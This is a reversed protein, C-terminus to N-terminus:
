KLEQQTSMPKQIARDFDNANCDASFGQNNGMIVQGAPIKQGKVEVPNKNFSMGWEDMYKKM